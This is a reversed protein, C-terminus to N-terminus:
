VRACTMFLPFGPANPAPLRRCSSRYEDSDGLAELLGLPTLTAQRICRAYEARGAPDAARGLVYAYAADLFSEVGQRRIFQMMLQECQRLQWIGGIVTPDTRAIRDLSAMPKEGDDIVAIQKVTFIKEGSGRRHLSVPGSQIEALSVGLRLRFACWGLGYDANMLDKRFRHALGWAVETDNWSVGVELTRTPDASDCAWGEIYGCTTANDLHGLLM